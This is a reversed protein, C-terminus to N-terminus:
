RRLVAGPLTITEGERLKMGTRGDLSILTGGAGVASNHDQEFKQIPGWNDYTFKVEDVVSGSGVTAHNYEQRRTLKFDDHQTSM